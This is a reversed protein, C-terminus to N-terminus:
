SERGGGDGLRDRYAAIAREALRDPDENTESARQTLWEWLDSRIRISGSRGGPSITALFLLLVLGLVFLVAVLIARTMPDGHWLYVPTVGQPEAVRFARFLYVFIYSGTFLLFGTLTLVALTRKM